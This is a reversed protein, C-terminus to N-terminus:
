MHETDSYIWFTKYNYKIIPGRKESSVLLITIRADLITKRKGIIQWITSLIMKLVQLLSTFNTDCIIITSNAM